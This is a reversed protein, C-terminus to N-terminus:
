RLTFEIPVVIRARVPHGSQEAPRFRWERIAALAPGEFIAADSSIVRADVVRGREDVTVRLFVKGEMEARRAVSPYEPARTRLPRPAEDFVVFEGSDGGAARALPEPASPPEIKLDPLVQADDVVELDTPEDVLVERQRPPPPISEPPDPLVFDQVNVIEFGPEEPSPPVIRKVKLGPLTAFAYLHAVLSVLLAVQFTRRSNRKFQLHLRHLRSM